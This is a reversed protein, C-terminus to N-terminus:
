DPTPPTPTSTARQAPPSPPSPPPLPSPPSTPRPSPRDTQVPATTSATLKIDAKRWLVVGHLAHADGLTKEGDGGVFDLELDENNGVIQEVTVSTYGPPIPREHITSPNLPLASGYADHISINRARVHLECPTPMIVDDVPYRQDDVVTPEIQPQQEAQVDPAAMSACSSRRQSAPSIVVDPHSGATGRQSLALQAAEIVRTDM